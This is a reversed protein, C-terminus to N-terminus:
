RWEGQLVFASWYYPSQWRKERLMETQATRLAAAPRMGRNLMAAYFRKMLEATAVDDVKWLSACVRSAGAYMFGRTLGILGEGRVEKGLATNCASLVVLDVPLELNCIEHLRLFGEQPKGNSDVLSLVIGSLEPHTSNLLGHTAFHVIRYQGLDTRTAASSSADFDLALMGTGKPAASIIADAERRTFPLRPIGTPIGSEKISRELDGAASKPTARTSATEPGRARSLRPDTEEFVPDAFVAVSKTHRGAEPRDRRLMALTSASPLVVIEHAVIMAESAEGSPNGELGPKPLAGFPLYQLAGEAVLLIRKQGLLHAAPKLLINSLRQAAAPYESEAKAIRANRQAATENAPRENRATLLGYVGRAAKEIEERKPLVFSELSKDTVAWLYSQEAGLAYELLITEGDLAQSQIEAVSLPKPHALAAYRPSSTIIQSKVQQYNATLTAIERSLIAAEEKSHEGGQLRMQYAAKADLQRALNREREILASDVTRELNARAQVLTELLSRARGRESIELAKAAEPASGAQHRMLLNVHFDYYDRVTAFYSARLDASAINNRLSEVTDIAASIQKKAEEINSRSAELRALGARATAVFGPERLSENLSISQRYFDAAKDPEGLAFHVEGLHLLSQAEARKVGLTRRLQLAQTHYQLAKQVNGMALEIQGLGGVSYAEGVRDQIQRRLELAKTIYELAKQDDRKLQFYATSLNHLSAAEGKRDGIERRIELSHNLYELAKEFDGLATYENGINMLTSSESRRDKAERFIPLAKAYYDLAKQHENLAWYVGGINNLATAETKRAGVRRSLEATKEYTELAKVPDGLQQYTYGVGLLTFSEGDTDGSQRRFPLAREFSDLARQIDSLELYVGGMSDLADGQRKVDGALEFNTLASKFKELAERSTEPTHKRALEDANALLREAKGLARDRDTAARLEDLKLLYKGDAADQDVRRVEVLYDGEIEAVWFLTEAGKRGTENVSYVREKRPDILTLKIDIGQQELNIRACLGVTSPVRFTQTAGPKLEENLPVGQQLQREQAIQAVPQASPNMASSRFLSAGSVVILVIAALPLAICPVRHAQRLAVQKQNGVTM